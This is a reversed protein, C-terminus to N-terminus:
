STQVPNARLTGASVDNGICHKNTQRHTQGWRLTSDDQLVIWDLVSDLLATFCQFKNNTSNRNLELGWLKTFSSYFTPRHATMQTTLVCKLRKLTVSVSIIIHSSLFLPQELRWRRTTWMSFSYMFYLSKNLHSQFHDLLHFFFFFMQIEPQPTKLQSVLMELFIDTGTNVHIKALPGKWVHGSQPANKFLATETLATETCDTFKHLHLFSGCFHKHTKRSVEIRTFSVWFWFHALDRSRKVLYCFVFYHDTELVCAALSHHLM